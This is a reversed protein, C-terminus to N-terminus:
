GALKWGKGSRLKRVHRAQGSAIRQPWLLHSLMTLVICHQSSKIEVLAGILSNHLVLCWNGVVKSVTGCSM